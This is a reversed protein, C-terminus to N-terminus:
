YWGGKDSLSDDLVINEFLEPTDCWLPRTIMIESYGTSVNPVLAAYKSM